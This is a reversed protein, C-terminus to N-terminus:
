PISRLISINLKKQIMISFINSSTKSQILLGQLLISLQSLFHVKEVFSKVEFHLQSYLFDSALIVDPLDASFSYLSLFFLAVFSHVLHLILVPVPHVYLFLLSTLNQTLKM